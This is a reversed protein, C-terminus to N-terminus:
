QPMVASHTASNLERCDASLTDGALALLNLAELRDRYLNPDAQVVGGAPCQGLPLEAKPHTRPPLTYRVINLDGGGSYLTRLGALEKDHALHVVRLVEADEKAQREAGVRDAETVDHAGIARQLNDHHHVWAAFAGTALLAMGVEIALRYPALSIM